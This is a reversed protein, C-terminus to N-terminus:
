PVPFVRALAVAAPRQELRADGARLDPDHAEPAPARPGAGGPDVRLDVIGTNPREDDVGYAPLRMQAVKATQPAIRLRRARIPSAAESSKTRHQLLWVFPSTIGLPNGGHLPLPVLCRRPSGLLRNLLSGLSGM